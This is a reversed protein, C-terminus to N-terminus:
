WWWHTQVFEFLDHLWVYGVARRGCHVRAIATAGPRLGVVDRRDFDVTVRLTPGITEDLETALAANAIRGEYTVGPEAALAFTVGLDAQLEERARLLHGARYDPVQLELVWPGDLNGVTILAQGRQVPRAELLQKLNWSLAQGDIPSRIVLDRQQEDLIKQQEGLGKLLEKLEQEDVALDRENRRADPASPANELRQAAIATLKKQATQIEGAVRRQELDLDANRLIVLPQGAGVTQGHSVLLENVVGDDTAFVEHRVQPELEGRVELDFDAPVLALAAAAGAIALAALITKPLQRAEVLWPVKALLRGLWALPLHSYGLSNALAVACHPTIATLRERLQVQGGTAQFQEAVLVAIVRSARGDANTQPDCLPVVAVTRAHSEDLYADLPREVQGPVDSAGDSFWLPDGTAACAAALAELRRVLMSRRDLVDVGSVALARCKSGATVLVSLRDCGIVGRADNAMHFATQRVDLSRHVRETFADYQQAFQDRRRLEALEFRRHFDEILEVAAGLVRLHRRGGAPSVARQQVLEIVGWTEAGTQFPYFIWAGGPSPAAPSGSTESAVPATVRPEPARLVDEVLAQHASLGGAAGTKSALDLSIQCELCLQGSRPSMWVAGGSAELAPVIRELVFRHFDGPSKSAKSAQEIDDLLDELERWGAGADDAELSLPRTGMLKLITSINSFSRFGSSTPHVFLRWHLM